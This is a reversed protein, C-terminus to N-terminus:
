LIQISGSYNLILVVIQGIAIIISFGALGCMTRGFAKSTSNDKTAMVWYNIFFEVAMLIVVINFIILIFTQIMKM